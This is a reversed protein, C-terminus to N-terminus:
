LTEQKLADIPNDRRIKGTAYLMTVFVVLFVSGVAIAMATWPLRYPAIFANSVAKWILWSVGISVPLGWLLAKSGYLLCEFRMMRGFAKDGMGVSKLTAFERRRLAVNTSITNFVNAAAILSILIIFGFTFVNLVLLFALNGEEGERADHFQMRTEPGLAEVADQLNKATQSHNKAQFFYYNEVTAAGGFVSELQRMPLYLSCGDWSALPPETLLAAVRVKTRGTAEEPTLTLFDAPKGDSGTEESAYTLSAIEMNEDSESGYISYGPIQRWYWELDMEVPLVGPRLLDIMEFAIGNEYHYRARFRGYLLADGVAPDTGAEACLAAYEEEPLFCVSLERSVTGDEEYCALLAKESVVARDLQATTGVTRAWASQEVGEVGKLLEYLAPLKEEPEESVLMGVVDAPASSVTQGIDRRLVDALSYASIFLVISLFLSVVTSRYQRRSRKFNKSALTGPFGFLKSTLRSTKVERARVKVDANQRIAAIPSLRTARKAPIWASVLATFLGTGAAVLLSPVHLALKISVNEAGDIQLFSDFAPRLFRLTLGIGGCGVLLGLPIAVVCLLLAETLVMRRLQRNTAGISKLLGFQKTRESVSISFSNYILSVSGLFILGFLIAALSYLVKLLLNNRSVGSFLLLDRNETGSSGYDHVALFDYVGGIRDLTFFVKHDASSAGVTLVMSGPMDYSEIDSGFRDYMGVITYVDETIDTLREEEFLYPNHEGLSLGDLTERQGVTLHLTQGVRIETGTSPVTRDSILLEHDNEPMRGELLRVSVLETFNESMSSIRLYPYVHSADGALAWGIGDLTTTREVEDMSRLEALEPDSVEDYMAHYAGTSAKAVDVLYQRGSWVGEAVATFLAVSLIIGIITVLTRVRNQKLCRRTYSTLINM